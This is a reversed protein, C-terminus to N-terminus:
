MSVVRVCTRGGSGASPQRLADRRLSALAQLASNRPDFSSTEPKRPRWFYPYDNLFGVLTGFAGLPARVHLMGGDFSSDAKPVLSTQLRVSVYLIFFVIM